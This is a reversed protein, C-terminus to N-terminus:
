WAWGVHEPKLLEVEWDAFRTRILEGGGTPPPTYTIELYYGQHRVSLMGGDRAPLAFMSRHAPKLEPSNTRLLQYARAFLSSDKALRVAVDLPPHRYKRTDRLLPSTDFPESVAGAGQGQEQTACGVEAM